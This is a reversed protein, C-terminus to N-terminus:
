SLNKKAWAAAGRVGADDGLKAAIVEFRGQYVELVNKEATERVTEVVLDEMAEVLGGGLIVKDPALLHVLNAVAFGITECAQIVL